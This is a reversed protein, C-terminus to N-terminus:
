SKITIGRKNKYIKKMEEQINIETDILHMGEHCCYPWSGTMAKVFNVKEQNGCRKCEVLTNM